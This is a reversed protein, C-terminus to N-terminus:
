NHRVRPSKMSWLGGPEETWPIKRALISSCTAMGKELPDEWVWAKKDRRAIRQFEANLHIYKEKEGKGKAERRKEAIQLAEESL